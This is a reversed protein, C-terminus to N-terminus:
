EPVPDNPISHIELPALFTVKTSFSSFAILIKFFFKSLSDILFFANTTSFSISPKKPLFILFLNSIKKKSGGKLSM